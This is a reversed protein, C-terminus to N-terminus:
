ELLNDQRLVHNVITKIVIRDGTKTRALYTIGLGGQGLKKEITYKGKHLRYGPPWTLDNIGNRHNPRHTTSAPKYPAYPEGVKLHTPQTTSSHGNKPSNFWRKVANNLGQKLKGCVSRHKHTKM